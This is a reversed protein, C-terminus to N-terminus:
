ISFIWQLYDLDIFHLSFQSYFSPISSNKKAGALPGPGHFLRGFLPRQRRALGGRGALTPVPSIGGRL